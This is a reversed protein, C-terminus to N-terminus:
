IPRVSLHKRGPELPPLPLQVFGVPQQQDQLHHPYCVQAPIPGQPGQELSPLLHLVRRMAPVEMGMGRRAQRLLLESCLAQLGLPRRLPQM